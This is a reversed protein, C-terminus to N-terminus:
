IRKRHKLISQLEPDLDEVKGGHIKPSIGLLRGSPCDEDAEEEGGGSGDGSQGTSRLSDSKTSLPVERKHELICKQYPIVEMKLLECISTEPNCHDCSEDCHKYIRFEETIM